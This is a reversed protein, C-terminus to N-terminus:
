AEKKDAVIMYRWSFYSSLGIMKLCFLLFRDLMILARNLLRFNPILEFGVYGGSLPLDIINTFKILTIEFGAHELLQKAENHDCVPDVHGILKRAFLLIWTPNPDFVIVRKSCVRLLERFFAQSDSEGHIHHLVEKLVVTDFSHNAFPLKESAVYRLDAQPYRKTGAKVCFDLMDIGIPQFGARRLHEVLSGFGCGVDLVTKGHVEQTIQQNIVDDVTGYFGDLREIMSQDYHEYHEHQPQGM